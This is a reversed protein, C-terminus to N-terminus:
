TRTAPGGHRVDRKWPSCSVGITAQATASSSAIGRDEYRKWMSRTQASDGLAARIERISARLVSQSVRAGDWVHEYLAQLHSNM